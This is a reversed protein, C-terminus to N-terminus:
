ENGHGWPYIGKHQVAQVGAEFYVFLAIAVPGADHGPLGGTLCRCLRGAGLILLCLFILTGAALGQVEINFIHLDAVGLHM